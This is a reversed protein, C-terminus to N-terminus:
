PNRCCLAGGGALGSKTVVAAEHLMDNCSWNGVCDRYEWVKALTTCTNLAPSRGGGGCGFLNNDSATAVCDYALGGAQRTIFMDSTVAACTQMTLGHTGADADGTCVHWGAACVDAVTCNSGTNLNCDIRTQMSQPTTVGAFTWAGDCFAVNPLKPDVSARSGAGCGDGGACMAGDDLPQGPHVCRHCANTCVLGDPCVGDSCAYQGDALNPSYCGAALAVALLSKYVPSNM